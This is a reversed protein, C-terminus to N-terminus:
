SNVINLHNIIATQFEPLAYYDTMMSTFVQTTQVRMSLINHPISQTRTITELIWVANPLDDFEPLYSLNARWGALAKYISAEITLHNIYQTDTMDRDDGYATDSVLTVSFELLGRQIHASRYTDWSIPSFGIYASPTIPVPDEADMNLQGLNWDVHKLATVETSLRQKLLMYTERLM